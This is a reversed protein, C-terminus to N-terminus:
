KMKMQPIEPHAPNVILEGRLQNVVVDMDALPINGLLPESNGPLVVARCTTQRNKFRLEVPTVIDCEIIQGDALLVKRKEVVTLQLQQQINENIALMYFGTHVKAKIGIRKVEKKDLYGRRALTLDGGNILEIDAYVLDM